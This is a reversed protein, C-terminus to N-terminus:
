EGESSRSASPIVRFHNIGKRSHHSARPIERRDSAPRRKGETGVVGYGCHAAIGGQERALERRKTPDGQWGNPSGATEASFCQGAFHAAKPYFGAYARGTRAREVMVGSGVGM